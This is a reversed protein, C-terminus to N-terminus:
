YKRQGRMNFGSAYIEAFQYSQAKGRAEILRILGIDTLFSVFDSFDVFFGKGHKEWLEQLQQKSMLIELNTLADFFPRLESYEERVEACRQRSARLLGEHVSVAPLLRDTPLTPDPDATLAHKKAETLVINVSGPFITGSADTLRDYVWRSVYQSKANPERRVGWLLQLVRDISPEDAQDINEVPALRDVLDKFQESQLVQRLTLRLFDERTWQLIINRGNFYGKTDFVLQHWIDERLFIKFCITTLRDASHIRPLRSTDFFRVFQFLGALVRNRLNDEELLDKDLDDYLFWLGQDRRQLSRNIYDIADKVLLDIKRNTVMTTLVRTHEEQWENVDGPVENLISWLQNLEAPGKEKFPQLHNQLHMRLLLYSGWFAEWAGGNQRISQDIFRFDASTPHVRFRDHGSLCIVHSLPKPSLERAVDKHKLLLEYLTTKGTGKQGRILSTTADFFREFDATRQFLNRLSQDATTTNVAPFTLSELLQQRRDNDSLVPELSVAFTDEDVLNALSMYNSLLSLVPYNSALAIETFYNITIPEAIDSQAEGGEQSEEDIDSGLHDTAADLRVQLALWYEKVKEDGADGFPVPSFVLQLTVRNALTELLLDIGRKNQENPYLFVIAQDAARLLSFAGWENIGTRSDVLIIDPQLQETIERFFVSWLDEGHETVASARLDDVKTIYDLDLSGAPVIFFRGPANPIRMEGFMEVISISPEVGQPIYSREYFYDVIGYTPIPTLNSLASLGPAELDLDVAVVKRGRMALIWAVHILATTRGVGGKFSYFTVTHPIRPKRRQAQPHESPNMAEHALDAWNDVRSDQKPTPKPLALTDAESTTYLSLFGTATPADLEQLLERIQEDRQPLPIHAFRDSVITIDLVGSTSLTFNYWEKQSNQIYREEINKKLVPRWNQQM